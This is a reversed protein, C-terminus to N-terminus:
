SLLPLVDAAAREGSRVAGDMYGCWVEATETGAWHIRGCPQRLAPGFQSLVGPAMYAGYCGRSWEEASWDREIYELPRSARPGFIRAFCDVVARRRVAVPQGGLQRAARGEIFGLLVGPSGSPPSNDFTIQVPGEDSTGQGTLGEARWFPEDYVCMAKIVAGMPMRQTLQDRQAPLAPTYEIRGALTPPVSVVVRQARVDGITVGTHDHAISRVPTALRVVDAGLQEALRTAILQSGGVFRREQAGDQVNFMRNLLGGSHAYFLFHLLSLDCAEASFVSTVGLRFMEKAGDTPVNRRIWTEVTMSDWDDAKAAAWPAHLPVDKAMRDLRAQGIGISALVHPPMKPIAGRYRTRRGRYVLLNEGDNYTPYQDVGLDHALKDLRDQTPGIWQGGVEVVSGDSTVDNLVRGGVRDRAELVVATRGAAIIDRATTLGALGAGVVVVDVDASGGAV